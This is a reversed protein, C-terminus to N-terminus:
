RIIVLMTPEKWGNNLDLSTFPDVTAFEVIRRIGDEDMALFKPESVFGTIIRNEKENYKDTGIPFIFGYEKNAGNEVVFPDIKNAENIMFGYLKDKHKTKLSDPVINKWLHNIDEPMYEDKNFINISTLLIDKGTENKILLRIKPTNQFTYEEIFDQRKHEIYVRSHTENSMDDSVYMFTGANLVEINPSNKKLSYEEDGITFVVAYDSLNSVKTWTDTVECSLLVMSIALFYLYKMNIYYLM